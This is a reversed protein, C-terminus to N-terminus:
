NAVWLISHNLEIEEKQFGQFCVTPTAHLFVFDTATARESHLGCQRKKRQPFRNSLSQPSSVAKLSLFSPIQVYFPQQPKRSQSASMICLYRRQAFHPSEWPKHGYSIESM